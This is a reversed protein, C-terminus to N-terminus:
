DLEEMSSMLTRAKNRVEEDVSFLVVGKRPMGYM